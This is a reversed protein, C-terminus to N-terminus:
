EKFLLQLLTKHVLSHDVKSFTGHSDSPTTHEATQSTTCPFGSSAPSKRSKGSHKLSSMQPICILHKQTNDLVSMTLMVEHIM